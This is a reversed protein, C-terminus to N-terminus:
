QITRVASFLRDPRDRMARDLHMLARKVPNDQRVTSATRPRSPAISVISRGESESHRPGTAMPARVAEPRISSVPSSFSGPGALSRLLFCLHM